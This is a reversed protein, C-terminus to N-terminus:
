TFRDLLVGLRPLLGLQRVSTLTFEQGVHRVLNPSRCSVLQASILVGIFPIMPIVSKVRSDSNVRCCRSFKIITDLKAVESNVMM